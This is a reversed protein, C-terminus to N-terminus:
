DFEARWETLPSSLEGLRRVQPGDAPLEALLQRMSRRLIPHEVEAAIEALPELVFRREHMAPHPLTLAPAGYREETPLHPLPVEATLVVRAGFLLLDLDIVRPGKAAVEKRRRGMAREIELMARLLREPADDSAAANERFGDVRLALAMNAFAPQATFEVPESAYVASIADVVALARLREVARRLNGLRDGVNSGLSLYAREM